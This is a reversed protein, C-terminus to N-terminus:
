GAVSGANRSRRCIKQRSWSPGVPTARPLSKGLFWQHHRQQLDRATVDNVVTYGAIHRRADGLPISRGALGIVVGLEVEYDLQSTVNGDVIIVDRAGCLASV